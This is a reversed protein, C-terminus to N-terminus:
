LSVSKGCHRKNGAQGRVVKVVEHAVVQLDKAHLRLELLLEPPHVREHPLLHLRQIHQAEGRVVGLVGEAGRQVRRQLLLDPVLAQPGAVQAGLQPAGAVALHLEGQHVHDEAPRPVGGLDEPRRRRVRAVALDEGVEARRLLLAPVQLGQEGVLDGRAPGHRLRLPAGVWSPEYGPGHLVRGRPLPDDVALLDPARVPLVGGEVEDAGHRLRADVGRVAPHRYEDDVGLVGAEPDDLVEPDAPAAWSVALSRLAHVAPAVGVDLVLVAAHRSVGEEPLAPAAEEDLLRAQAPPADVVAHAGDPLALLRQVHAEHAHVAAPRLALGERRLLQDLVHERLGPHLQLLQLEDHQAGGVLDVLVVVVPLHPQVDARALHQAAGHLRADGPLRDLDVAADAGRPVERERVHEDAPERQADGVARRLDVDLDDRLLEQAAVGPGALGVAVEGLVAPVVQLPLREFLERRDEAPRANVEGHKLVFSAYIQM